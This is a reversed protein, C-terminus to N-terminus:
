DLSTDKHPSVNINKTLVKEVIEGRYILIRKNGEIVDGAKMQWDFVVHIFIKGIDEKKIKDKHNQNQNQFGQCYGDIKFNHIWKERMEDSYPQFGIVTESILTNGIYDFTLDPKFDKVVLEAIKIHSFGTPSKKDNTYFYTNKIKLIDEDKLDIMLNGINKTGVKVKEGHKVVNRSNIVSTTKYPVNNKNNFDKEWEAYQEAFNLNAYIKINQLVKNNNQYGCMRGLLGQATAESKSSHDYVMFVYKKHDARITIGARFAGKIVFILPKDFKSNKQTDIMVDIKEEIMGYDISGNKSDVVVVRFKNQIEFNKLFKQNQSRIFIVGKNKNKTIKLYTDTIYKEIKSENTKNQSFDSKLAQEVCDSKLYESIGIYNPTTKLIITPKSDITDSLIEDFPTASVSVIFIKKEKLDLKNKWDISNSKLFDTLKQREGSGYHSEDIFICCNKLDNLINKNCFDSNKLVFFKQKNKEDFSKIGDCINQNNAGIVQQELRNLTQKHLGNDNMGTIYFYKEVGFYGLEKNELINIVANCVGTKGSQMKALLIVHSNRADHEDETENHATFSKVIDKATEIQNNHIFGDDVVNIVKRLSDNNIKQLISVVRPNYKYDSM